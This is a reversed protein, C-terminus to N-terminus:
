IWKASKGKEVTTGGYHSVSHYPTVRCSIVLGAGESFCSFRHKKGLPHFAGFHYFFCHKTKGIYSKCKRFILFGNKLKKFCIFRISYTKSV